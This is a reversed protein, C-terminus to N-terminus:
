VNKFILDLRGRKAVEISVVSACVACLGGGPQEVLNFSNSSCVRQDNHGLECVGEALRRDNSSDGACAGTETLM